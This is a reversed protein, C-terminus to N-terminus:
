RGSGDPQLLGSKLTWRNDAETYVWEEQLMVQKERMRALQIYRVEAVRRATKGDPALEAQMPQYSTIKIGQYAALDPPPNKEDVRLFLGLKDFASWEMMREYARTTDDLRILRSEKTWAACGALVVAAALGILWRRM